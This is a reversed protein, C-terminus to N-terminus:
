ADVHALSVIGPLQLGLLLFSVGNFVFELMTMISRGQLRTAASEGGATELYPMLMGAAVAALIGSLGFHEAFIYATFP